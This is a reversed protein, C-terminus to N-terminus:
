MTKGIALDCLRRRQHRQRRSCPQFPSRSCLRAARAPPRIQASSECGENEWRQACCWGLTVCAPSRIGRPTKKRHSDQGSPFCVHSGLTASSRQGLGLQDASWWVVSFGFLGARRWRLLLVAMVPDAFGGASCTPFARARHMKAAIPWSHPGRGPEALRHYRALVQEILIHAQRSRRPAIDPATPPRAAAIMM